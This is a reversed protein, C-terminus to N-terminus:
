ILFVKIKKRGQRVISPCLTVAKGNDQTIVKSIELSSKKIRTKLSKSLLHVSHNWSTIYSQMSIKHWTMRKEPESIVRGEKSGRWFKTELTRAMKDRLLVKNICCAKGDGAAMIIQFVTTFHIFAQCKTALLGMRVERPDCFMGM